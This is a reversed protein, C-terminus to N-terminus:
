RAEYQKQLNADTQAEDVKMAKWPKNFVETEEKWCKEIYDQIEHLEDETVGPM